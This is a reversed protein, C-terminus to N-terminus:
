SFREILFSFIIAIVQYWQLKGLSGTYIDGFSRSDASNPPHSNARILSIGRRVANQLERLIAELNQKDIAIPSLDNNFYQPM